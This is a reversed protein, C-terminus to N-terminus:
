FAAVADARSQVTNFGKSNISNGNKQKLIINQFHKAVQHLSYSKFFHDDVIFKSLDQWADSISDKFNEDEVDYDLKLIKSFYRSIDGLAAFDKAQDSPYGPNGKKWIIELHPILLRENVNVTDTVNVNVAQNAENKLATSSDAEINSATSRNAENNLVTSRKNRRVEASKLGGLKGATSRQGREGEWTVLDRKLQQKIPEFVLAILLDDVVPNKDNVYRLITKLLEGAKEDPM